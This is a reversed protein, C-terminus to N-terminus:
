KKFKRGLPTPSELGDDENEIRKADEEKIHGMAEEVKIQEIAGGEEEESRQNMAEEWDDWVEKTSPSYEPNGKDAKQKENKESRLKEKWITVPSPPRGSSPVAPSPALKGPTVNSPTRPPPVYSGTM